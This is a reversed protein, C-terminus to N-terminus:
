KTIESKIYEVELDIYENLIQQALDYKLKSLKFIRKSEEQHILYRNYERQFIEHINISDLPTQVLREKVISKVNNRLSQQEKKLYKIKENYRSSLNFLDLFNKVRENEITFESICKSEIRKFDGSIKFEIDKSVDHFYPHYIPFLMNEKKIRDNCATCAVVLNFPFISLVPHSSKPLFHDVSTLDYEVEHLDCYICTKDSSLLRRFDKLINETGTDEVYNEIYKKMGGVNKYFYEFSEKVNADFIFCTTYKGDLISTYNVLYCNYQQKIKGSFSSTKLNYLHKKLKSGNAVQFLKENHSKLERMLLQIDVETNDRSIKTDCDLFELVELVFKHYPFILKLIEEELELKYM